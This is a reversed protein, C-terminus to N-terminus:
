KEIKVGPFAKGANLISLAKNAKRASNNWTWNRSTKLAEEGMSKVKDPNNVCWRMLHKLQITDPTAWKVGEYALDHKVDELIYDVTKSNKDNMYDTQGGYGTQITPLGCAMAEIGPLNFGESRTPCVFVDGQNYINSLESYGINNDIIIVNKNLKDIGIKSIESNLDDIKYSSNLKLILKVNEEDKFEENFAKLLYQVGGRDEMGGRWGKVCVFTFEDNKLEPKPFFNNLDVGHPVIFIQPIEEEKFTNLLAQKTHNSPVWLQNCKNLHSLWYNPVKDGEWVVFGILNKVGDSWVYDYYLPNTIAINTESSFDNTFMKFLKDPCGVEWGYPKNCDISVEHGSDLLSESLFRTHTSYGIQSFIDGIINIKM